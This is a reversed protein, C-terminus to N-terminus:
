TLKWMLLYSQYNKWANINKRLEFIKEKKTERSRAVVLVTIYWEDFNAMVLKKVFYM